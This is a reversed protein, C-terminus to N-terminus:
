GLVNHAKKNEYKTDLHSYVGSNASRTNEFGGGIKNVRWQWSCQLLRSLISVMPPVKVSRNVPVLRDIRHMRTHDVQCNDSVKPKRMVAFTMVM